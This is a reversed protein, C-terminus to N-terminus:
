SGASITSGQPMFFAEISTVPPGGAPYRWIYTSNGDLDAAIVRRDFIWFQQVYQVTGLQTSGIVTANSGAFRLRYLTNTQLNGVVIHRGDFQLGGAAFSHDLRYNKFTTTGKKLVGIEEFRRRHSAVVQDLYLNGRADYACWGASAGPDYYVHPKNKEHPFIVVYSADM